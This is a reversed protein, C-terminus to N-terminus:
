ADVGNGSGVDLPAVGSMQGTLGVPNLGLQGVVDVFQQEAIEGEHFISLKPIDADVQSEEELVLTRAEVEKLGKLVHVLLHIAAIQREISSCSGIGRFGRKILHAEHEPM